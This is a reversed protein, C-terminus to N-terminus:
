TGFTSLCISKLFIIFLEKRIEGRNNYTCKALADIRRKKEPPNKLSSFILADEFVIVLSKLLDHSYCNSFEM